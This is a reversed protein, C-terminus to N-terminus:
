TRLDRKNFAVYLGLKITDSLITSQQASYMNNLLSFVREAAASSPMVLAVLQAGDWWAKLDSHCSCDMRGSHCYRCSSINNDATTEDGVRLFTRYHWSLISSRDTSDFSTVVGLAIQRYARWSRKMREVISNDGGENLKHFCRLKELRQLGEEYPVTRAYHPNFLRAGDYFQALAYRDGSQRKM